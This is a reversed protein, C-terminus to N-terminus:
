IILINKKIKEALFKELTKTFNKKRLFEEVVYYKFNEKDRM